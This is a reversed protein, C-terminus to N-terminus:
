FAEGITLYFAPEDSGFGIDLRLQVGERPDLLYRLGAGYNFHYRNQFVDTYRAGTSGLSMFSSGRFRGPLPFRYEGQLLLLGRDRYRGEVTGRGRKPGGLFSLEQFPPSGWLHSTVMNVAVVQRNGLSIYRAADLSFRRYTFSSGLWRDNYEWSLTVYNGLTPLNVNDRNDYRLIWGITSVIGGGAGTPGVRELLGGSTTEYISYDDFKYSIGTRLNPFVTKLYHMRFRPFRVSYTEEDEFRTENGIGYYFYFYDYYGVEGFLETKGQNLFYQYFGYLLIQRNLTYSASFQWQSPRNSKIKGPYYNFIAAGGFGLRTEPFYFLIPYIAKSAKKERSPSDSETSQGTVKFLAGFFCCGLLLMKGFNCIYQISNAM